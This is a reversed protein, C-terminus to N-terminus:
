FPWVNDYCYGTIPGQHDCDKSGSSSSSTTTNAIPTCTPNVLNAKYTSNIASIQENFVSCTTARGTSTYNDKNILTVASSASSNFRSVVDISSEANQVNENLSVAWARVAALDITTTNAAQSASKLVSETFKKIAKKLKNTSVSINSTNVLIADTNIYPKLKESIDRVSIYIEDASKGAAVSAASAAALVTRVSEDVPISVASGEAQGKANTRQVTLASSTLNTVKYRTGDLNECPEDSEEDMYVCINPSGVISNIVTSLYAISDGNVNSSSLNAEILEIAKNNAKRRLMSLGQEGMIQVEVQSESYNRNFSEYTTKSDNNKFMNSMKNNSIMDSINSNFLGIVVFLVVVALAIGVAVETTVMALKRRQDIM